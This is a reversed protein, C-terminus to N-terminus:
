GDSSRDLQGLTRIVPGPDPWLRNPHVPRSSPQGRSPRPQLLETLGGARLGLIEELVGVAEISDAREPRSRGAQWYSLTAVSVRIGREGLRQRLSELTLGSAQIAM